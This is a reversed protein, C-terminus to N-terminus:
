QFDRNPWTIACSCRLGSLASEALTTRGAHWSEVTYRQSDTPSHGDLFFSRGFDVTRYCTICFCGEAGARGNLGFRCPSLAMAAM